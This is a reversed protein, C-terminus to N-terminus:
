VHQISRMCVLGDQDASVCVCVCDGVCVCVCVCVCARVCARVCVCVRVGACLLRAHACRGSRGIRRVRTSRSSKSTAAASAARCSGTRGISASCRVHATRIIPDAGVAVRQERLALATRVKAGNLLIINMEFPRSPGLCQRECCGSSEAAFM